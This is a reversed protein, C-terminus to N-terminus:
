FENTNKLTKVFSSVLERTDMWDRFEAESMWKMAMCLTRLGTRGYDELIKKTKQILEPDNQSPDM